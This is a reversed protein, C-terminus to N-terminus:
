LFMKFVVLFIVGPVGLFGAILATVANIGIYFGVYTGLYNAVYLLVIGIVGNLLIKLPWKLLKITLYLLVLGVLGYFIMELDM